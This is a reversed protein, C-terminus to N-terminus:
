ELMLTFYEDPSAEAGTTSTVRGYFPRCAPLALPTKINLIKRRRLERFSGLSGLLQCRTTLRAGLRESVVEIIVGSRWDVGGIAAMAAVTVAVGAIVAM